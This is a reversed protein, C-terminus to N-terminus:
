AIGSKGLRATEEPLKKNDVPRFGKLIWSLLIDTQLM